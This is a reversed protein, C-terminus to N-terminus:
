FPCCAKCHGPVLQGHHSAVVVRLPALSGAVEASSTGALDPVAAVVLVRHRDQIHYYADDLDLSGAASLMKRRRMRRTNRGWCACYDPIDLEYGEMPGTPPVLSRRLVAIATVLIKRDTWSVRDVLGAGALGAGHVLNLCSLTV